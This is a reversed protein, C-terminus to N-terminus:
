WNQGDTRRDVALIVNLRHVFNIMMSKLSGVAMVFNKPSGRMPSNLVEPQSIKRKKKARFDGNIDSVTRPLDM